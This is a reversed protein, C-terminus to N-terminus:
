FCQIYNFGRISLIDLYWDLRDNMGMIALGKAFIGCVIPRSVCTGFTRTSAVCNERLSSTCRQVKAKAELGQQQCCGEHDRQTQIEGWISL